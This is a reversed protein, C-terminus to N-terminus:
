GELFSSPLEYIDERPPSPADKLKRVLDPVVRWPDVANLRQGGVAEVFADLEAERDASPGLRAEALAVLRWVLVHRGDGGRRVRMWPVDAGRILQALQEPTASM